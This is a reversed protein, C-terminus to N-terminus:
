YALKKILGKKLYRIAKLKQNQVFKREFGMQMAVIDTPQENFFIREFIEKRHSPMLEIERYISQLVQKKLMEELSKQDNLLAWYQLEETCSQKLQVETILVNCLRTAELQLFIGMDAVTEFENIKVFLNTFAESVLDVIYFDDQILYENEPTGNVWTGAEAKQKLMERAKNCLPTFHSRYLRDFLAQRRKKLESFENSIDTLEIM